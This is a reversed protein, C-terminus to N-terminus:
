HLWGLAWMLLLLIPIPLVLLGVLGAGAM